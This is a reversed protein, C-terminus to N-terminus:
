PTVPRSPQPHEKLWRRWFAAAKELDQHEEPLGLHTLIGMDKPKGPTTVGTLEELNQCALESFPRRKLELVHLLSAYAEGAKMEALSLAASTYVDYNDTKLDRFRALTPISARQQLPGMAYALAILIPEREPAYAQLNEQLLSVLADGQDPRSRWALIIDGRLWFAPSHYVDPEQGQALLTRCLAKLAQRAQAPSGLSYLALAAAPQEGHREAAELYSSIAAAPLGKRREATDLRSWAGYSQSVNMRKLQNHAFLLHFPHRIQLPLVAMADGATFGRSGLLEGALLRLSLSDAFLAGELLPRSEVDDALSILAFARDTLSPDQEAVQRAAALWEPERRKEALLAWQSEEPRATLAQIKLTLPAQALLPHEPQPEDLPRYPPLDEFLQENRAVILNRSYRGLVDAQWPGYVFPVPDHQWFLTTGPTAWYLADVGFDPREQWQIDTPPVLLQPDIKGGRRYRRYNLYTLASGGRKLVLVFPSGDSKRQMLHGGWVGATTDLLPTGNLVFMKCPVGDAAADSVKAKRAKFFEVERGFDLGSRWHQPWLPASWLPWRTEDIRAVHYGSHRQPDAVWAEKGRLWLQLTTKGDDQRDM